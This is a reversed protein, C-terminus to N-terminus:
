RHSPSRPCCRTPGSCQISSSPTEEKSTQLYFLQTETQSLSMNVIVGEILAEDLHGNDGVIPLPNEFIRMMM